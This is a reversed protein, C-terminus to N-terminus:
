IYIGEPHPLLPGSFFDETAYSGRARAASGPGAPQAPPCPPTPCPRDAPSARVWGAGSAAPLLPRTKPASYEGAGWVCVGRGRLGTWGRAPGDARDPRLGGPSPTLAQAQGQVRACGPHWQGRRGCGERAEQSVLRRAAECAARQGVCTESLRDGTARHEGCGVTVGTITVKCRQASEM